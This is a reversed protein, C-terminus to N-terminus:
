HEHQHESAFQGALSFINTLAFLSIHFIWVDFNTELTGSRYLKVKMLDDINAPSESEKLQIFFEQNPKYSCFNLFNFLSEFYRM